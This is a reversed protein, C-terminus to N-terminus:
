ETGTPMPEPRPRAVPPRLRLLLGLPALWWRTREPIIDLELTTQPAFLRRALSRVREPTVEALEELEREYKRYDGGVLEADGLGLVREGPSYSELAREVRFQRIHQAFRAPDPGDHALAECVEKLRRRRPGHRGPPLFVAYFAAAGGQRFQFVEGGAEVCWGSKKVLAERLPSSEGSTLLSMLLDTAPADQEAGPALRHVRVVMPLELPLRLALRGARALFAPASPRAPAQSDDQWEGFHRGALEEVRSRAVDGSAVVFVNGPKYWRRYFAWLEDLKLAELDSERGLPDIAYPHDGGVEELLRRLARSFPNNEHGRLEELIVKREIEVHQSTFRIRQFRDAELRLVEDLAAAPFTEHLVTADPLTFGNAEGGLRAIRRTHEEPGVNESGRFMMHEVFHATGRRDRPEDCVGGQVWFSLAAAPTAHDPAVIFRLGNSLSFQEVPEM